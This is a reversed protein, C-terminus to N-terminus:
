TWYAIDIRVSLPELRESVNSRYKYDDAFQAEIQLFIITFRAGGTCGGGTRRWLWNHSMCMARSQSLSPSQSQCLLFYHKRDRDAHLTYLDYRLISFGDNEWNQGQGPGTCHSYAMLWWIATTTTEKIHCVSLCVSLCVNKKRATYTFRLRLSTVKAEGESQSNVTVSMVNRPLCNM